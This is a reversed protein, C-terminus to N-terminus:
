EDMVGDFRARERRALAVSSDVEDIGNRRAEALEIMNVHHAQDLRFPGLARPSAHEVGRTKQLRKAPRLGHVLHTRLLRCEAVEQLQGRLSSTQGGKL